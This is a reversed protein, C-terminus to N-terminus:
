CDGQQHDHHRQNARSPVGQLFGGFLEHGYFALQLLHLLECAFRVGTVEHLVDGLEDARVALDFRMAQRQGASALRARLTDDEVLTGIADLVGDVHDAVVVM